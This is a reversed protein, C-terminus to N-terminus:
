NLAVTDFTRVTVRGPGIVMAEIVKNSQTNIVRITDGDSGHELARGQSMLLLSPARLIITVLSSKTVLLPRRVESARVPKGARLGRKASKGVLDGADLIIDRQLRSSRVKIWEIDGEGIIEGSMVRRALVPVDSVKILRGTVRIRKASPDDAPAVIIATFRKTRPEFVADDVAITATADGAVHLRLMRNSLEVELGPNAGRDILAALIVDEIEQRGIVFSERKVVTRDRIGTPRWNLGHARAVRSLWRADFVARKGPAPTYAVPTDAKDGAGTFIDGLLVLDSNVVVHSRLIVQGGPEAGAAPAAALLALMIATKFTKM